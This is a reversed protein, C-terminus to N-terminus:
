PDNFIHLKTLFLAANLITSLEPAYGPNEHPPHENLHLLLLGHHLRARGAKSARYLTPAPPPHAGEQRLRFSKANKALYSDIRNIKM